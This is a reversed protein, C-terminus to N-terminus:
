KVLRGFLKCVEIWEEDDGAIFGYDDESACDPIGASIWTEWINEDGMTNCIYSDMAKLLQIRDKIMAERLENKAM